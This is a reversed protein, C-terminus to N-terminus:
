LKAQTVRLKKQTDLWAKVAAYAARRDPNARCQNYLQSWYWCSGPRHGKFKCIKCELQKMEEHCAKITNVFALGKGNPGLSSGKEWYQFVKDVQVQAADKQEEALQDHDMKLAGLKHTLANVQCNSQGLVAQSQRLQRDRICM